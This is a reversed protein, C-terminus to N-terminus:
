SSFCLSGFEYWKNLRNKQYKQKKLCEFQEHKALSTIDRINV